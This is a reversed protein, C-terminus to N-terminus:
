GLVALRSHSLPDSGFQDPKGGCGASLTRSGQQMDEWSSGLFFVIRCLSEPEGSIGLDNRVLSSSVSVTGSCVGFPLEWRSEAQGARLSGGLLFLETLGSCSFTFTFLRQKIEGTSQFLRFWGTIEDLCAPLIIKLAKSFMLAGGSM